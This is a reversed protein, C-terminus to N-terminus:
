RFLLRDLWTDVSIDRLRFLLLAALLILSFIGLALGQSLLFALGGQAARKARRRAGEAGRALGVMCFDRLLRGSREVVRSDAPDIAVSGLVDEACKDPDFEGAVVAERWPKAVKPPVLDLDFALGARFRRELRREADGPEEDGQLPIEELM